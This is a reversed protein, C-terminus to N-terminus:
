QSLFLLTLSFPFLNLLAFGSLVARPPTHILAPLSLVTAVTGQMVEDYGRRSAMGQPWGGSVAPPDGLSLLDLWRGRGMEM